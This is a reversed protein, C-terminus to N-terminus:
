QYGKLEFVSHINGDPDKFFGGKNGDIETIGKETKLGPLDYEEFTVGASQLEGIVKIPDDVEWGIATAENTGAFQSPYLFFRTGGAVEFFVGAPTENVPALGLKEKYWNKAAEVDKVPLAAGAKANNLM